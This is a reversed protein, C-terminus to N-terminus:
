RFFPFLIHATRVFATGTLDGKACLLVPGLLLLPRRVPFLGSLCLLVAVVVELGRTSM